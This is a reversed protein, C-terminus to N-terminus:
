EEFKELARRKAALLGSAEGTADPKRAVDPTQSSPDAIASGQATAPRAALREGRRRDRAADALRQADAASLTLTPSDTVAPDQAAVVRARLGAMDGVVGRESRPGVFRRGVWRDWAVRRTAIDLLTLGVAWPLIIAWLPSVVERPRTSGRDFLAATAPSDLALVRGGTRAAIAALLREDSTGARFEVGEVMTSGVIVPTLRREGQTPKLLAVYSGTESGEVSTEYVGPATQALRVERAAGSPTYVTAPVSLGDLPRGADDLAELRLVLRDSDIASSAQFTRSSPPRSASRVVQTWFRQYGPWDLWRGAWNHADSTFAVVQGLGVNWHALLPEGGPAVMGLAITPEPRAATLVLGGLTPPDPLGATMPSVGPLVIPSFPAERILPARVVRVAKLFIKPLANPNSAHYYTGGGREALLALTPLDADDGVAITSVRAGGARLEDVLGPLNETNQSRGDTLLVVHKVKAEVGALQRRALVLGDAANTGGGSGIKRVKEMSRAPDANTGIPILVDGGSNFTIVSILDRPDLSRIALAVADNAVQQQNRDSGLVYKKMSGSNDIVFVTAADPSLVKDPLDLRVPLIAELPSRFWGGAGFSDPGGVMALGGGLDRVYAVLQQQVADPVDEAPVNQLVVLDYAQLSLLDAPIGDSPVVVVDVGSARLARALTSGPADEKGASVGDAILVSGKGPTLTFSDGRNNETVTDGSLGLVGAVDAVVDPEYVARFRHVRGGDLNIEVTEVNLGPSLTVVRGTGPALGNLDVPIGERLLQLTGASPDTASLAVRVRVVAGAAASPPADVSELVVERGVRYSLPVVDVPFSAASRRGRPGALEDAAALADGATPVGDSFLVLRGAADPPIIARALRLAAAIDTGELTRVAFDRDLPDARTPTAVAVARGDFAVVGLLDEPGRRLTAARLFDRVAEVADRRVASGSATTSATGAFRRVSGSVDVVAVVALRDTVRVDSAGALMALLSGILIARVAISAVRRTPSMAGFFRLGILALPIVVLAAWLWLPQEFRVDVAL